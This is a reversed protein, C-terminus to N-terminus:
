PLLSVNLLDHTWNGASSVPHDNKVNYQHLLFHKNSLSQFYVFFLGFIAWKLFVREYNFIILRLLYSHKHARALLYNNLYRIHSAASISLFYPVGSQEEEEGGGAAASFILFKKSCYRFTCRISISLVSDSFCRKLYIASPLPQPETPLASAELELRRRNLDLWRCFIINVM